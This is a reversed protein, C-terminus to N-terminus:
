CKTIYKTLDLPQMMASVFHDQLESPLFLKNYCELNVSNFNFSRKQQQVRSKEFSKSYLEHSSNFSITSAITNGIDKPHEIKNDDVLLHHIASTQSKGSICKVM